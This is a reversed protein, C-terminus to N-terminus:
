GRGTRRHPWILDLLEPGTLLKSPPRRNATRRAHRARLETVTTTTRPTATSDNVTAM